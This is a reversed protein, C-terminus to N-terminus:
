GQLPGSRGSRVPAIHESWVQEARRHLADLDGDNWIVVAARQAKEAVPLQMRYRDMIEDVSLGMREAARKAATEPDSLVAIVLDYRDADDWEFILAADVLPLGGAQLVDEIRAALRERIHPWIARNLDDRATEDRFVIRGLAARDLRDDPFIGDGFRARLWNRFKPSQEVVDRGVADGEIVTAGLEAFHQAVTSKGSGINGTLGVVMGMYGQLGGIGYHSALLHRKVFM